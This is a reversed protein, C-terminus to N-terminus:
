TVINSLTPIWSNDICGSYSGFAFFSELSNLARIKVSRSQDESCGVFIALWAPPAQKVAQHLATEGQSDWEKGCIGVCDGSRWMNKDTCHRDQLAEFDSRALQLM